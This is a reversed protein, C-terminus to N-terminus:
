TRQSNRVSKYPSDETRSIETRAGTVRLTHSEELYAHQATLVANVFTPNYQKTM